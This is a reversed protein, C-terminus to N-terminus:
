SGVIPSSFNSFSTIHHSTTDVVHQHIVHYLSVTSSLTFYKNVYIHLQNKSVTIYFYLTQEHVYINKLTIFLLQFNVRFFLIM